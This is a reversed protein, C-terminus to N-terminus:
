SVFFSFRLLLILWYKLRQYLYRGKWLGSKGFHPRKLLGWPYVGSMLFHLGILSGRVIDIATM